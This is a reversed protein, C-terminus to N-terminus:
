DSIEMKFKKEGDKQFVKGKLIILGNQDATEDVILIYPFILYKREEFKNDYIVLKPPETKLKEIGVSCLKLLDQTVKDAEQQNKLNVRIFITKM